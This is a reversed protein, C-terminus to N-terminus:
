QWSFGMAVGDIAEGHEGFEKFSRYPFGIDKIPTVALPEEGSTMGNRGLGSAAPETGEVITASIPGLGLQNIAHIKSAIATAKAGAGVILLDGDSVTEGGRGSM